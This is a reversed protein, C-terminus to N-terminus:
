PVPDLIAGIPAVHEHVQDLLTTILSALPPIKKLLSRIPATFQHIEQAIV